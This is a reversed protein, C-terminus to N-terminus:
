HKTIPRIKSDKNPSESSVKRLEQMLRNIKDLSTRIRGIRDGFDEAKTTREHPTGKLKGELHSIYLPQRDSTLENEIIKKKKFSEFDLINSKKSNLDKSEMVVGAKLM